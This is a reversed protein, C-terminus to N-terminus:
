ILFKFIKGLCNVNQLQLVSLLEDPLGTLFPILWLILFFKLKLCGTSLLGDKLFFDWWLKTQCPKRLQFSCKKGTSYGWPFLFMEANKELIWSCSTSCWVTKSTARWQTQGSASANYVTGKNWICKWVHSFDKKVLKCECQHIVVPLYNRACSHPKWDHPFQLEQM